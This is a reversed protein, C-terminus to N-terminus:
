WLAPEVHTGLLGNMDEWLERFPGADDSEWDAFRSVRAVLEASDAIEFSVFGGDGEGPDTHEPLSLIASEV